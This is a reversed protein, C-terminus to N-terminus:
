EINRRSGSGERMACMAKRIEEREEEGATGGNGKRIVRGEVGGLLEMFYEKWSKM